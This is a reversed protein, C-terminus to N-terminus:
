GEDKRMALYFSVADSKNQFTGRLEDAIYVNHEITEEGDAGITEFPVISIDIQCGYSM